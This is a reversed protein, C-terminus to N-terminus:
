RGGAPSAKPLAAQGPKWEYLRKDLADFEKQRYHDRVEVKDEIEILREGDPTYKPWDPLGKGNPDDKAAFDVWYGQVMDVIKKETDTPRTPPGFGFVYALECGHHAGLSSLMPQNTGRSFVYCYTPYGNHSHMRAATRTPVGWAADTALRISSDRIEKADKTRFLAAIDTSGPGFSAEVRKQFEAATKPMQANMLFLSMEDRTHGIIMPVPSEKGAAFVALPVDTHVYGDVIPALTGVNLPRFNIERIGRVELTPFNKVLSDVPIKRLAVADASAAAGCKELMAVGNQEASPQTSTGDHLHSM